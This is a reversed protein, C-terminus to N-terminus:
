SNLIEMARIGMREAVIGYSDIQQQPYVITGREYTTSANIKEKDGPALVPSAPDMPEMERWHNLCHGLRDGFGPAFCSPDLAVFCQGLNPSKTQTHTWPPVNYAANSGSLGSCLVEVMASLAYGKYGSTAEFGGLPLLRGTDFAEQPDTTTKGDAGLAWGEPIPDGKRIQMEIKGMAATTSAMDVVLSDGGSAPAAFAIPNTGLAGKKARTPVMVPSSNTFSMGILGEKEARLAWYGAMGYHNCNKVAVIGVGCEKSKKIALSMCFNGVTAGLARCGDVWATSATEKLIVQKANADCVGSKMDNLYLELRNMGHSYHGVIDAHLLLESHAEAEKLPAGAARLAEVMFRKAEEIKVEPMFDSNM